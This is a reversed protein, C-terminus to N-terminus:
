LQWDGRRIRRANVLIIVANVLYMIFFPWLYHINYDTHFISHQILNYALTLLMALLTAIVWYVQQRILKRGFVIMAPTLDKNKKLMNMPVLFHVYPIIIYFFSSLNLLQLADRAGESDQCTPGATATERVTFTEFPIDLAQAIAKLTYSRPVSEGSEIRQITRVTLGTRGALEEQTLGKNKRLTTIQQHLMMTSALDLSKKGRRWSFRIFFLGANGTEKMQLDM